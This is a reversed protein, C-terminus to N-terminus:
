RFLRSIVSKGVGAGDKSGSYAFSDIRGEIDLEGKELTLKGVHLGNGKILLMGAETELVLEQEDFSRVDKVGTMSVYKRNDMSLKHTTINKEEVAGGNQWFM